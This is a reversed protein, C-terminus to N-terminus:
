TELICSKDLSHLLKERVTQSGRATFASLTCAFNSSPIKVNVTGLDSSLALTVTLMWYASCCNVFYCCEHWHVIKSTHLQNSSSEALHKNLSKFNGTKKVPSMASHTPVKCTKIHFYLCWLARCAGRRWLWVSLIIGM